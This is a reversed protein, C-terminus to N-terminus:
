LTAKKSQFIYEIYVRYFSFDAYSGLTADPTNKGGEGSPISTWQMAVGLPLNALVWQYALTILIQSLFIDQGLVCSLAGALAQVQIM